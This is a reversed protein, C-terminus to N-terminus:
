TSGGTNIVVAPMQNSFANSRVLRRRFLTTCSRSRSYDRM